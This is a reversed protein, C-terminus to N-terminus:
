HALGLPAQAPVFGHAYMILRGNWNPPICIVILQDSPNKPDRSPLSGQECGSPWTFQAYTPNSSSLILSFALFVLFGAKSIWKM